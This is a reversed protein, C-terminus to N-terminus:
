NVHLDLCLVRMAIVWVDWDILDAIDMTMM